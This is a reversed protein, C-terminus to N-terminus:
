YRYGGSNRQEEQKIRNIEMISRSRMIALDRVDRRVIETLETLGKQQQSLFDFVREKDMPSLHLQESGESHINRNVMQSELEYLQSSFRHPLMLEAKLGSMRERFLIDNKKTPQKWHHLREVAKMVQILLGRLVLQRQKQQEIKIKTSVLTAKNSGAIKKLRDAQKM